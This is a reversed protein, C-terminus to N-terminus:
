DRKLRAGTSGHTAGLQLFAQRNHEIHEIADRISPSTAPHFGPIRLTVLQHQHQGNGRNLHHVTLTASHHELWALLETDTVAPNARRGPGPRDRGPLQREQREHQDGGRPPREGRPNCHACNVLVRPSFQPTHWGDGDCHACLTEAM